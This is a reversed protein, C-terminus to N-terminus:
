DYLCIPVTCRRNATIARKTKDSISPRNLPLPYQFLHAIYTTSQHITRLGLFKDHQINSDTHTLINGSSDYTYRDGVSPDSYTNPSTSNIWGDKTSDYQDPNIQQILNGNSDYIYRTILSNNYVQKIIKNNPDYTDSTINNESDIKGM